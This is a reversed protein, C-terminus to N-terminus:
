SFPCVFLCCYSLFIYLCVECPEKNSHIEWGTNDPWKLAIRDGAITFPEWCSTYLQSYHKEVYEKLKQSIFLIILATMIVHVIYVLRSTYRSIFSHLFFSQIKMIRTETCKTSMIDTKMQLILTNLVNM